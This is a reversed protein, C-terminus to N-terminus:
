LGEWKGFRKWDDYLSRLVARESNNMAASLIRIGDHDASEMAAIMAWVGPNLAERVEPGDRGSLVQTCYHHVVSSLFQGVRAKEKRGEDVLDASKNRHRIHPPDCFLALLRALARAQRVALTNRASDQETSQDIGSFLGQLVAVLLHFRGQLRSRYHALLVTMIQTLDLYLITLLSPQSVVRCLATCIEEMGFQDMIFPKERLFTAFSQMATKAMRFDHCGTAASITRRLLEHINTNYNDDDLDDKTLARIISCQLLLGAESTQYKERMLSVLLLRRWAPPREKVLKEFNALIVARSDVSLHLRLIEFSMDSFEQAEDAAHQCVVAHAQAIIRQWLATELNNDEESSADTSNHCARRLTDQANSTLRQHHKRITGNTARTPLTIQLISEPIAVLTDTAAFIDIMGRSATQDFTMSSILKATKELSELYTSLIEPDRHVLLGKTTDNAEKEMALIAVKAVAHSSFQANSGPKSTGNLQLIYSRAKESHKVFIEQVHEREQIKACQKFAIHTLRGILDYLTASNIQSQSKSFDANRTLDWICAADTVLKADPAGPELWRILSALRREIIAMCDSSSSPSPLQAITDVVNTRHQTTVISLPVVDLVSLLSLEIKSDRNSMLRACLDRVLIDVPPCVIGSAEQGLVLDVLSTVHAVGQKQSHEDHVSDVRGFCDALVGRRTSVLFSRLLEPHELLVTNEFLGSINLYKLGKQYLLTPTKLDTYPMFIGCITALLANSALILPTATNPSRDANQFNDTVIDLARSSFLQAALDEVSTTDAQQVIWSPTWSRFVIDLLHAYEMRLKTSSTITGPEAPNQLATRLASLLGQIQELASEDRAGQIFAGVLVFQTHLKRSTDESRPTTSMIRIIDLSYHEIAEILQAHTMSTTAVRAFDVSIENWILHHESEFTNGLQQSWLQVFSKLKRSLGFAAIIPRIVAHRVIGSRDIQTDATADAYHGRVDERSIQDFVLNALGSETLPM